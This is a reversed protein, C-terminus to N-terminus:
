DDDGGVDQARLLALVFTAFVLIHVVTCWECIRHIVVLEAYVLYLVTALGVLSWIVHAPRLWSPERGTLAAVSAVGSLGFWALGALVVPVTTGPVISFTSNTVADCDLPGTTVCALPTGAYHALTLYVAVAFGACSVVTLAIARRDASV